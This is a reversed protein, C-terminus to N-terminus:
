IHILSLYLALRVPFPVKRILQNVPIEACEFGEVLLISFVMALFAAFTVELGSM